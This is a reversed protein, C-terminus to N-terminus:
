YHGLLIMLLHSKPIGDNPFGMGFLSPNQSELEAIPKSEAHEPVEVLCFNYGLGVQTGVESGVEQDRFDGVQSRMVLGTWFEMWRLSRTHRMTDSNIEIGSTVPLFSVSDFTLWGRINDYCDMYEGESGVECFYHPHINPDKKEKARQFMYTLPASQPLSSYTGAIVTNGYNDTIEYLPSSIM